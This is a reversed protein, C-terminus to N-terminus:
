VVDLVQQWCSRSSSSTTPATTNRGQQQQHQQSRVNISHHHTTAPHLREAVAEGWCCGGVACMCVCVYTVAAAAASVSVAAAACSACSNCGSVLSRDGGKSGQGSQTCDTVALNSTDAAERGIGRTVGGVGRGGEGRGCFVCGEECLM